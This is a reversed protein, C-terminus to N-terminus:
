KPSPEHFEEGPNGLKAWRRYQGSKSPDPDVYGQLWFRFWDVDGQQSELRELPAQHIHTGHPFYILDVPKGQMRLSSYLEWEQLVSTPNIAEIRVPARVQDLHFGPAQTVWTNLGAGFPATGYIREMQKRISGGDVGFLLYQMYSDDLGDAVTAAAFLEPADILADIAYWCTWSFGVVGVRTRDILGADSLSQIASRYGEVHIARDAETLTDPKKKIQLVVFGASALERAAFATPYLGDTLFQGDVFSYMQIVLPYKNGPAYDVPKVLIGAWQRGTKDKWQYPSAEGFRIHRFQPNPDWLERKEEAERDVAWLAPPDNLAQRVVIQIASNTARRLRETAAAMSEFSTMVWQGNEFRYHRLVQPEAGHRLLVLAEGDNTGFSVDQIHFGQPELDQAESFFCSVHFSPLDVSAAACPLRNGADKDPSLFTNTVLVRREDAAWVVRNEDLYYALSRANPADILPVTKGTALDTLTYQRPRMVNDPSTLDPEGHASLRLHEFGAVPEYQQWAAPVTLVPTVTIVKDAKPSLFFPFVSSLYTREQVSYNPLRKAVWQGNANHLVSMSFTEPDITSLQGPFLVDYIREGTVARADKNIADKPTIDDSALKSATYVITSGVVDFHDISEDAPTLANPASGQVKAEYLQSAGRSNEGRFYLATGDSSWRLDHIVSAYATTQDRHPLSVMRAIMRPKPAALARNKLFRAVERLDFVTVDSEIRDSTLIGRRTVIAVYKGDPSQAAIDSGPVDPDSSPDSFRVMRIDDQVSFAHDQSNACIVSLAALVIATGWMFSRM